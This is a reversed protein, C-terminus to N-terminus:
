DCEDDMQEGCSDALNGRICVIGDFGHSKREKMPEGGTLGCEPCRIM